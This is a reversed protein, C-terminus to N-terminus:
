MNKNRNIFISKLTSEYICFAWNAFDRAIIPKESTPLSIAVMLDSINGKTVKQGQQQM